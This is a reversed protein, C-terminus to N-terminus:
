GIEHDVDEEGIQQMGERSSGYVSLSKAVLCGTSGFHTVCELCGTCRDEDIEYVRHEPRVTVAGHPCVAACATCQICTQFKNIQYNVYSSLPEAGNPALTVVRVQDSGTLAQVLLLPEGTKRNDVFFEGLAPRGRAANLRGLPKFFEYLEDNVPRNLTYQVAHNVDGCPRVNLGGFRNPLGAGGFRKKWAKAAVYEAPDPKGIKRAFALLQGRWRAADDPFFVEALFDSWESNLPCLWCGVRTYGLRYSRNFPLGRTLLYAWVDFETWDIIPSATIQNGIKAGVTVAHYDARQRSEARRIGYFTLVKVREGM